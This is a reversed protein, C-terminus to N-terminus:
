EMEFLPENQLRMEKIHLKPKQYLSKREVTAKFSIVKEKGYFIGYDETTKEEPPYAVLDRYKRPFGHIRIKMSDGHVRQISVISGTFAYTNGNEYDELIQDEDSSLYNDFSDNDIKVSTSSNFNKNVGISVSEIDGEMFPTLAKKFTKKKILKHLKVAYNPSIVDVNPAFKQQKAQKFLFAVVLGLTAFDIPNKAMYDNLSRHTSKLSSFYENASEFAQTNAIKLFDLLDTVEYFPLDQGMDIVVLALDIILSGKSTKTAKIDVEYNLNTVTIIQRIVKEFGIISEGFLALDVRSDDTLDNGKYRIYLSSEM